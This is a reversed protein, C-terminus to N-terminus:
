LLKLSEERLREQPWDPHEHLLQLQIAGLRRRTADSMEPASSTSQKILPRMTRFVADSPASSRQAPSPRRSVRDDKRTRKRFLEVKLAANISHFFRLSWWRIAARERLYGSKNRRKVQRGELYGLARLDRIAFKVRDDSLGTLRSLETVPIGVEEEGRTIRIRLSNLDTFHLLARTTAVLAERRESRSGGVLRMEPPLRTFGRKLRGSFWRPNSYLRDVTAQLEAILPHSHPKLGPPLLRPEAPVHGCRNGSPLACATGVPM